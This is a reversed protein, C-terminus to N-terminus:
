QSKIYIYIYISQEYNTNQNVIGKRNMNKAVRCCCDRDYIPSGNCYSRSYFIYILSGNCYSRSYFITEWSENARRCPFPNPFYVYTYTFIRVYVHAYTRIYAYISICTSVQICQWGNMKMRICVFAYTIYM